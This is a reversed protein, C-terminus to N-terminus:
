SAAPPAGRLLFGVVALAAAAFLAVSAMAQPVPLVRSVAVTFVLGVLNAVFCLVVARVPSSGSVALNFLAAVVLLLGSGVFWAADSAWRDYAVTAFGVHALGFVLLGVAAIRHIITM